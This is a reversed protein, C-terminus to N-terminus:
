VLEQDPSIAALVACFRKGKRRFMARCRKSYMYPGPKWMCRRNMTHFYQISRVDDGKHPQQPRLDDSIDYWDDMLLPRSDAFSVSKSRQRRKPKDKKLCSAAATTDIFRQKREPTPLREFAQAEALSDCANVPEQMLDLHQERQVVSFCMEISEFYFLHLKKVPKENYELYYTEDCDILHAYINVNAAKCFATLFIEESYETDAKLMIVEIKVPRDTCFEELYTLHDAGWEFAMRRVQPYMTEDGFYQHAIASPVCNGNVIVPYIEFTDFLDEIGVFPGDADDDIWTPLQNTFTTM